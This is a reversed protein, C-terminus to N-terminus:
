RMAGDIASRIFYLAFRDKYTYDMYIEKHSIGNNKKISGFIDDDQAALTM